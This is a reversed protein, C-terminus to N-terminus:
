PQRPESAALEALMKTVLSRGDALILDPDRSGAKEERVITRVFRRFPQLFWRM